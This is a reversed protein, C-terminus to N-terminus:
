ASPNESPAPSDPLKWGLVDLVRSAARQPHLGSVLVSLEAFSDNAALKDLARSPPAPDSHDLFLREYAGPYKARRELINAVLEERPRVLSVVTTEALIMPRLEEDLLTDDGLVIIHKARSWLVPPLLSRTHRRVAEFGERVVLLDLNTGARHEIARDLWFLPLGTLISVMRATAGARVGPLGSLALSKDPRILPTYDYYDYAV